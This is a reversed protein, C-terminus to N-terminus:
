CYKKSPVTITPYGSIALNKFIVHKNINVSETSVVFIVRTLYKKIVKMDSNHATVSRLAQAFLSVMCAITMLQSHSILLHSPTPDNFPLLHPYCKM